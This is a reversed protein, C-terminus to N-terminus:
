ESTVEDMEPRAEKLGCALVFKSSQCVEVFAAGGGREVDM